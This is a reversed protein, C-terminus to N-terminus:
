RFIRVIKRILMSFISTHSVRAIAEQAERNDPNQALASQFSELAKGLIGLKQYCLGIHHWLFDNAINNACAKQFYDLALTYDKANFFIMGIRMPIKWDTSGALEMAKMFCLSANKNNAKLLVFGRAVYAHANAGKRSIAYDSASLARKYMGREAYMMARLSIIAGDEPFLELARGCWVDAEQLQRLEILCYIQGMWPYHQTNDTQIARSYFQMADKYKGHFYANDGQKIYFAVDYTEEKGIPQIEAKSTQPKERVVADQTERELKTFRGM